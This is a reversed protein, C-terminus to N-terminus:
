GSNEQFTRINEEIIFLGTVIPLILQDNTTVIKGFPLSNLPHNGLYSIIDTSDTLHHEFTFWKKPKLINKNATNQHFFYTSGQTLSLICENKSYLFELTGINDESKFNKLSYIKKNFYFKPRKIQILINKLEIFAFKDASRVIGIIEDNKEVIYQKCARGIKDPLELIIDDIYTSKFNYM